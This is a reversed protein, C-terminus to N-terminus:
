NKRDTVWRSRGRVPEGPGEALRRDIVVLLKHLGILLDVQVMRGFRLLSPLKELEQFPIRAESWDQKGRTRRPEACACQRRGASACHHLLLWPTGPRSRCCPLAPGDDPQSGQEMCYHCSASSGSSFRSLSFRSNALMSSSPPSSSM